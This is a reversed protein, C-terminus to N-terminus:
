IYIIYMESSIINHVPVRTHTHTKDPRHDEPSKIVKYIRMDPRGCICPAEHQIIIRNNKKLKYHKIVGLRTRIILRNIRM